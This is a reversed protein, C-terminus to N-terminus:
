WARTTSCTSCRPRSGPGCSGSCRCATPSRWTSCRRTTSSRRRRARRFLRDAVDAAHRLGPQGRAARRDAARRQGGPQLDAGLQLSLARQRGPRRLARLGHCVDDLRAAQPAPLREPPRLARQPGPLDDRSLQRDHEVPGAPEHGRRRVIGHNQLQLTWHGDVTWRSSLRRNAQFLLAQYDRVPTSSNRFLVRDLTGLTVGNRVVTVKGAASPDDIFDEIFGGVARWQYSVKAAGRDGFPTALALTFEKTVPSHMGDAIAVNATPINGGLFRTYNAPDFGPLFDMGQGAPGAYEYTLLGPNGVDTDDQFNPETYKGAYHGYTAQAIWRGTGSLDYAAGLRPVITNTDVSSIDGTADSKVMEFRTGLDLTLRPGATWRDHVYLSNTVIELVAGRSPLWNELRTVGPQFVPTVRGQADLAPRTGALAYDARFVYGTATQSNGGVYRSAYNEFGAKM